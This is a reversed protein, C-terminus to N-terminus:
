NAISAARFGCDGSDYSHYIGFRRSFVGANSSHSWYGGAIPFMNAMNYKYLYDKGFQNTGSASTALDDLPAGIATNLWGNGSTAGSFVQNGNNGYYVGEGASFTATTTMADYLTGINASSQWADGTTNWGAKLSLFSQTQKLVYMTNSTIQTTDTASTGPGTVGLMVEYMSGNLDAIGCQQGNHTTKTFGTTAGTKPKASSGPDGASAFGITTDDVDSLSGSNCGKPYNKVGTADYWACNATGTAAQGHALSLLALASYMFATPVNFVGVGRSRAMLVADALIGTCTGEATTYNQSRTYSTATTLSIPVGGFQSKVGGTLTGTNSTTGVSALYKDFFFGSKESGGDIFARHLAYGAANAAATTSFTDIGVVDIANAGYAAFRPSSSSGIRYYFKPVFVMISGDSYTYNGYNASAPDSTGTMASFGSPLTGSYTGVGFGQAGATGILGSFSSKTTFATHTSWASVGNNTGRHRVRWYYTQSASLGTAVISTKNTADALSQFVTTEFGTSTSVQWDSNLHTDSVGLWQFASSTLTVSGNQDTAGNTPSVNTPTAIGAGQVIITFKQSPSSGAAVTLTIAGANTPMTATILNGSVSVSGSSISATYTHFSSYNSITFQVTQSVYFAAPGTLDIQRNVLGNGDILVQDTGNLQIAGSLGDSSSKISITM